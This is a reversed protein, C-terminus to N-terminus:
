NNSFKKGPKNYCLKERKVQEAKVVRFYSPTRYRTVRKNTKRSYNRM